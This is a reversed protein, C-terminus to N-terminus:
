VTPWVWVEAGDPTAVLTTLAGDRQDSTLLHTGPPATWPPSATPDPGGIVVGDATIGAAASGDAEAPRYDPLELADQVLRGHGNRRVRVMNGDVDRALLLTGGTCLLPSVLRDPVGLEAVEVEDWRGDEDLEWVLRNSPAPGSPTTNDASGAFGFFRYVQGDTSCIPANNVRLGPPQGIPHWSDDADDLVYMSPAAGGVGTAMYFSGNAVGTDVGSDVLEFRPHVPVREWEDDGSRWRMLGAECPSGTPCIEGFVYFTEGTAAGAYPELGRPLDPAREVRGDAHRIRTVSGDEGDVLLSEDRGTVVYSRSTWLDDALRDVTADVGVRIPAFAGSTTPEDQTCGTLLTVVSLAAVGM